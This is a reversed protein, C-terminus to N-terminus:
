QPPPLNMPSRIFRGAKKLLHMLRRRFLPGGGAAMELATAYRNRIAPYEPRRPDLTMATNIATIAEEHANAAWLLSSEWAHLHAMHPAIMVAGRAVPLADKYRGSFALASAYQHAVSLDAGHTLAYAQELLQVAEARDGSKGLVEAHGTLANMNGPSIDLAQRALSLATHLRWEPQRQALTALYTSSERRRLRATRSFEAVDLSGSLTQFVLPALLGLEGLVSTAPHAVHRLKIPAIPIDRAIMAVHKEDLTSPDYVIVPTAQCRIPGDIEPLWQIRDSDQIWRQEFPAKVPDISYQPSVALVANAAAADAFRIAAYGGMSSGYTMVRDAGAVAERVAAMATTMEPYQYWDERRGMVHIASIGAAQLFTEGFGPRDFGHGIGYNDFTVVWRSRDEAPVSRVLVNDSRFLDSM